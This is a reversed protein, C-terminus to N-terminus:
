LRCGDQLLGWGKGRWGGGGLHNGVFDL